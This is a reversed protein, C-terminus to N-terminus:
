TKWMEMISIGWKIHLISPFLTFLADVVDVVDVVCIIGKLLVLVFRGFLLALVSVFFCGWSSLSNFSLYLSSQLCFEDMFLFSRSNLFFIM